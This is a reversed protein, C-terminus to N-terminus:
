PTYLEATTLPNFLFFGGAVLVKGNHLLTATHGARLTALNETPSWIGTKPDYLEASKLISVDMDEGGAALVKGNHLLTLTHGFRPSTMSGTPSWTGTKPDYLEAAALGPFGPPLPLSVNVGGAVLVEGSHLLTVTQIGGPTTMSGTASWTGTKPDYLEATALATDNIGYGGAVLVHGNHLQAATHSSRAGVMSGTPNWTGTKPDYFEAIALVGSPTGDATTESFGGAVLVEGNHLLTLTHDFRPSTMSGTPSWTGTKPDYLEATAFVPAPVVPFGPGQNFGGAVLVKGNHLVTGTHGSRPTSMSGTSSWNGTKPDYLEATEVTIDGTGYGGTVLVKGNRLVTATQTSAHPEDM